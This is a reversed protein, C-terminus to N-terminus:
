RRKKFEAIGVGAFIFLSGIIFIGSIKEGLWFLSLPAAWIPSLYTFIAADGVEISKLGRNYVYYALTGSILAMFWVGLHAGISAHRITTIMVDLPHYNLAFPFTTLFGIIFALNVLLNPSVSKRMIYKGLVIASIDILLSFGIIMNGHLTPSHGNEMALIPEVVCVLTGIFAIMMGLKESRTVHEHFLYGGLLALLIPSSASIINGSLSTTENLGFFLSGLRVTSTLFGAVLLLVVITPSKPLKPRTQRFIIFSIISSILFRYSLFILPPFEALTYKIVPAAVGWILSSLLLLLYATTRRKSM